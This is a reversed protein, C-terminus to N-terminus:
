SAQRMLENFSGSGPELRTPPVSCTLVGTLCRRAERSGAWGAWLSILASFCLFAANSLVNRSIAAECLTRLRIVSKATIHAAYVKKEQNTLLIPINYAAPKIVSLGDFMDSNACRYESILWNLLITVPSHMAANM